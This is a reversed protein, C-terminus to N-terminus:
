ALVAVLGAAIHRGEDISIVWEATSSPGVLTITLVDARGSNEYRQVTVTTSEETDASYTAVITCSM